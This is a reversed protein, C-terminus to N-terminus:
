PQEEEEARWCAVRHTEGLRRLLPEETACREVRLPCREFFLCGRYPETPDPLTGPISELRGGQKTGRPLARMLMRTYPHRPADFLAFVENEEVLKGAYMVGVRDATESVIGFDHTILLMAMNFSRRLELMLDLIQAQISVDLATTPEDAILLKPHRALMMAIMVRQRMGGSLEHPYSRLKQEPDALRVGRFLELVRRMASAKALGDLLVAECTQYGATYLPNLSDLPNQFIMGIHSGRVASLERDPLALLNREGFRITGTIRRGPANTESLLGMVAQATSSKGCGSEGVLAYIERPRISFSVGDVARSTGRATRFSVALNEVSLLPTGDAGGPETRLSEGGSRAGAGPLADGATGNGGEHRHLRKEHGNPNNWVNTM